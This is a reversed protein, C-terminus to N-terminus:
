HAQYSTERVRPHTVRQAAEMAVQQCQHEELWDALVMLGSTTTSFEAKLHHAYERVQIRACAVIIDKHVDLGACRPHLLEM